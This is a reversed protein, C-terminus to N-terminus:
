STCLHVYDPGNLSLHLTVVATLGSLPNNVAALSDFMLQCNAAASCALSLVTSHLTRYPTRSKSPCMPSFSLGPM